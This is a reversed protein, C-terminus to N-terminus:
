SVTLLAPTGTWVETAAADEEAVGNVPVEAETDRQVAGVELARLDVRAVEATDEM